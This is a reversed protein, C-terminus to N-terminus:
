INELFKLNGHWFFGLFLSLVPVSDAVFNSTGSPDMGSGRLVALVALLVLLLLLVVLHLM